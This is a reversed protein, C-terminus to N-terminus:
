CVQDFAIPVDLNRFPDLLKDLLYAFIRRSLPANPFFIKGQIWDKLLGQQYLYALAPSEFSALTVDKFPTSSDDTKPSGSAQWLWYIVQSRSLNRNSANNNIKFDKITASGKIAFLADKFELDRDPYIYFENAWDKSLGLGRLLGSLAVRQVSQFTTDRPEIDVFPLLWLKADLLQQQLNRVNIQHPQCGDKVCIAAAAGAAQGIQMVVPQLRTCGNVLHTVSISKEAVLLGYTNRPVLCGYPVTFSPISPYGNQPSCGGQSHHHDIPYDGVAIGTQYVPRKENEYPNILDNLTLTVLGRIRRSERIYPILPLKDASPFEDDALGLNFFGLKNQILYIFAL